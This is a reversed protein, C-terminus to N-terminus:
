ITRQCRTRAPNTTMLAHRRRSRSSPCLQNSIAHWGCLVLGAQVQTQFSVCLGAFAEEPHDVDEKTRFIIYQGPEAGRLAGEVQM